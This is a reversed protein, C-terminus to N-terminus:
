LRVGSGFRAVLVCPQKNGRGVAAAAWRLPACHLGSGDSTCVRSGVAYVTLVLALVAAAGVAQAHSWIFTVMLNGKACCPNGRVVIGPWLSPRSTGSGLRRLPSRHASYVESLLAPFLSTRVHRKM